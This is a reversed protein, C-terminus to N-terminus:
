STTYILPVFAFGYYEERKIEAQPLRLESNEANAM